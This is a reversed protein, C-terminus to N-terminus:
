EGVELQDRVNGAGAVEAAMEAVRQKEAAGKVPGRLTVVGDVTIVKVNHANTSLSDDAVIQKRIDRTIAVDSEKASQDGPTLNAGDRDRANRGSDDPAHQAADRTAADTALAAHPLGAGFLALAAAAAAARAVRRRARSGRDARGTSRGPEEGTVAAIREGIERLRDDGLKQALEFLEEEEEEVHHEILEELVTMKAEFREDEPDVDPLERLVLRAVHHEEFAEPVMEQAKKTQIEGVAPYFHAEEAKMHAALKEGIEDLLARRQGPSAKKVQRFLGKVERHQKKLLTTANM